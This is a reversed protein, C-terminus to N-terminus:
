QKQFDRAILTGATWGSVLFAACCIESEKSSAAFLIFSLCSVFIVLHARNAGTRRVTM